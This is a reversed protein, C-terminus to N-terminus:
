EYFVGWGLTNRIRVIGKDNEEFAEESMEPEDPDEQTRPGRSALESSEKVQTSSASRDKEPSGTGPIKYVTKTGSTKDDEQIAQYHKGDQSILHKCTEPTEHCNMLQLAPGDDKTGAKRGKVELPKDNKCGDNDGEEDNYVAAKPPRGRRKKAPAKEEEKSDSSAADKYVAKNNRSGKPRGRMKKVYTFKGEQDEIKPPNAIVSAGGKPRGRKKSL